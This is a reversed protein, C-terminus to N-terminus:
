NEVDRTMGFLNIDNSRQGIHDVQCDLKEALVNSYSFYDQGCNNCLGATLSDGYCLIRRTDSSAKDPSSLIIKNSTLMASCSNSPPLRSLIDAAHRRFKEANKSTSQPGRICATILTATGLGLDTVASIPPRPRCLIQISAKCSRQRSRWVFKGLQSLLAEFCSM